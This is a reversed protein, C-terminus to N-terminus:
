VPNASINTNHKLSLPRSWLWAVAYGWIFNSSATEIFHVFSVMRPMYPNPILHQSNMILAFLTGILVAKQVASLNVMNYIILGILTWVLGRAMALFALGNGINQLQMTMFSEKLPSGTYFVRVAEFQWAIYYGAVLYIVPYIFCALLIIKITKVLLTDNVPTLPEPAHRNNRGSILVSLPAFVLAMFVGGLFTGLMLGEPMKIANNFVWADIFSLFFQIGAIVVFVTTATRIFNWKSNRIMIYIVLSNILCVSILMVLSLEPSAGSSKIEGSFFNIGLGLAFIWIVSMSVTLLIVRASHKLNKKM